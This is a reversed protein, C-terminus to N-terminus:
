AEGVQQLLFALGANESTLQENEVILRDIVLSADRNFFKDRCLACPQPVTRTNKNDKLRTLKSRRQMQITGLLARGALNAGETMQPINNLHARRM